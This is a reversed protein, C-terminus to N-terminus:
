VLMPVTDFATSPRVESPHTPACHAKGLAYNGDQVLSVHKAQLTEDTSCQRKDHKRPAATKDASHQTIDKSYLTNGTTHKRHWVM